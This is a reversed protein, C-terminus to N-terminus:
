RESDSQIQKILIDAQMWKGPQGLFLLFMEKIKKVVTMRVKLTNKNAKGLSCHDQAGTM